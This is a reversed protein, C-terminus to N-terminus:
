AMPRIRITTFLCVHNRFTAVSFLEARINHAGIPGETADPLRGDIDSSPPKPGEVASGVSESDQSCPTGDIGSSVCLERSRQKDM